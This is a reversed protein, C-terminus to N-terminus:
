YIVLSVLGLGSRLKLRSVNNVKIRVRVAARVRVKANVILRFELM